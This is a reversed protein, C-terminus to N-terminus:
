CIAILSFFFKSASSRQIEKHLRSLAKSEGEDYCLPMSVDFIGLLCYAKDEKETTQRNEVWRFREIISFDSLLQGRLAGIAIGTIDAIQHELSKKDGLRVCDQSYFEVNSPALLEQLTWGRTFWACNRFDSEWRRPLDDETRSLVDSLYTYCKEANQYWWFMTNIATTVETENSKDICCTDVWFYSLGDANAQKGCFKLKKFGPRDDQIGEQIEKFTVEENKGRFWTHSLIAYPPINDEPFWKLSFHNDDSLSLLRM